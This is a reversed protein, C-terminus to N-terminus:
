FLSVHFSSIHTFFGYIGQYLGEKEVKGPNEYVGANDYVNALGHCM